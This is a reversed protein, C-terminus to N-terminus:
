RGWARCVDSTRLDPHRSKAMLLRLAVTAEGALGGPLLVSLVEMEKLGFSPADEATVSVGVLESESDLPARNM